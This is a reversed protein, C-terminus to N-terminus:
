NEPFCSELRECLVLTQKNELEGYNRLTNIFDTLAGGFIARHERLSEDLSEIRKNILEDDMSMDNFKDPYDQSFKLFLDEDCLILLKKVKNMYHNFLIVIDFMNKLVNLLDPKTILSDNILTNLYENLRGVLNDVNFIDKRQHHANASSKSRAQNKMIKSDFLNNSKSNYNNLSSVSLLQPTGERSVDSGLEKDSLGSEINELVDNLKSYNSEIVDFNFYIQLENMFDRMRKHLLRSRLVAKRIRRDFRTYRWVTSNNIDKWTIENFKSIFKVMIQLKFMLEYQYSLERNIVLNIPFPLDISLDVSAVAYEDSHNPDYISGSNLQNFDILNKEFSKNLFNQLSPDNQLVKEADFAQVNMIEKAADYFNSSTISFIQNQKLVESISTRPEYTASALEFKQTSDFNNSYKKQLRSISIAYRNRKLEYFSGELFNDINSANNFLFISQIDRMLTKFNFGEFLLKMLLKNAREHFQNIRLELEQSFINTIPEIVENLSQFNNLGTCIKFINLFKGTNLIKRQTEMSSFQDILGDSRIVFLENWYHESNTNLIDMFNSPIQKKRILFEDSPDDIVGDILWSNLMSVYDKSVSDFLSTLFELSVTDGKYSNIRNQIIQLVLGGKCYEFNGSNVSTDIIGREQITNRISSIFDQFEIGKSKDSMNQRETNLEHISIIIEYLHNLKNSLEQNLISEFVNLNFHGNFKFDHEINIVTAKYEVLFEGISFCLSQVIRGYKQDDYLQLFGDLGSYFKGFKILKKTISKLSIDLHKAIKFDPGRIKCDVNTEDYKESYRIYFGEFGLLSFLLDKIILGQQVNLDQLDSLPYSRVHTPRKLTGKLCSQMNRPEDVLVAFEGEYERIHSSAMPEM